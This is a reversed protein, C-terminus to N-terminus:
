RFNRRACHRRGYVRDDCQINHMSHRALDQRLLSSIYGMVHPAVIAFPNQSQRVRSSSCLAVVSTLRKSRLLALNIHLMLYHNGRLWLLILNVRLLCHNIWTATFSQRGCVPEARITSNGGRMLVMADRIKRWIPEVFNRLISRAAQSCWIKSHLGQRCDFDGSFQFCM